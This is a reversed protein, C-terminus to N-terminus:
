NDVFIGKGVFPKVKVKEQATSKSFMSVAALNHKYLLYFRTGISVVMMVVFM